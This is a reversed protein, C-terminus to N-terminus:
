RIRTPNAALTKAEGVRTRVPHLGPAAAAKRAVTADVTWSLIPYTPRGSVYGGLDSWYLGNEYDSGIGWAHEPDETPWGGETGYMFQNVVAEEAVPNENVGIGNKQTTWCAYIEGYYIEGAGYDVMSNRGAVTGISQGANAAGNIYATNYCAQVYNTNLGVIGGVDKTGSVSATNCCAEVLYDNVGVIGGATEGKATVPGENICALIRGGTNHGVIGGVTGNSSVAGKNRCNMTLAALEYRNADVTNNCVIGSASGIENATVTGTNTAGVIEASYGLAVIGAVQGGGTIAGENTCGTVVGFCSAAIGAVYYNTNTVTGRNVCNEITSEARCDATIGASYYGGPSSVDGINTCDIISGRYSIEGTTPDSNGVSACIGGAYAFPTKCTSSVPGYNTCGKVTAYNLACIGGLFVNGVVAARNVCNEITGLNWGCISGVNMWAQTTGGFQGSMIEVNRITGRNNCFLGALGSECFIDFIKYGNGDHVGDFYTAPTANHNCLATWQMGALSLDAEQLFGADRYGDAEAKRLESSTAVLINGDADRRIKVDGGDATVEISVTEGVKRGIAIKAADGIQVSTVTTGSLGAVTGTTGDMKVEAEDGTSFFVKVSRGVPFDDGFEFVTTLGRPATITGGDTWPELYMAQVLVDAGVATLTLRYRYNPRFAKDETLDASVPISKNVGDHNVVVIFEQIGPEIIALWKEEGEMRYATGRGVKVPKETDIEFGEGLEIQVLAKAHTMEINTLERAPRQKEATYTLVDADLLGEKTGDQSRGAAPAMTLSLTSEAYGPFELPAESPVWAGDDYMYPASNGDIAATLVHGAAARDAAPTETPDAAITRTPAAVEATIRELPMPKGINEMGNDERACAFLLASFLVTALKNITTKM